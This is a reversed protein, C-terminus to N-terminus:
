RATLSEGGALKKFLAIIEADRPIDKIAREQAEPLLPTADDASLKKFEKLFAPDKFTKSMAERFMAVIEPPTGPPLIYPSGVLRFTRFMTGGPERGQILVITKGHFYPVSQGFLNTSGFSGALVILVSILFRGTM